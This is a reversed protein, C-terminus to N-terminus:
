KHKYSLGLMLWNASFDSNQKESNQQFYHAASFDLTLSKVLPYQLGLEFRHAVFESLREDSSAPGDEGFLAQQNSAYPNKYFFAQSQSYYRYAPLLSWQTSKSEASNLGFFGHVPIDLNLAMTHSTIGWDDDFFRYGLQSTIWNDWQKIWSANIGKGLREEPRLEGALFIESFREIVGDHNVDIARLITQYHNSLYGSDHSAFVSVTATSSASLTQNIGAEIDFAHNKDIVQDAYSGNFVYSENYIYSGGLTYSRNKRRDAWWLKSASVSSSSYDSEKSYGATVTTENRLEDRSTLSVNISRRIDTLDVKEVLYEGNPDYGLILKNSVRRAEELKTQRNRLDDVSVTATKSRLTPSAGSIADYGLDISYDYDVGKKGKISVAHDTVNVRDDGEVYRLVHYGFTAEAIVAASFVLLLVAAISRQLKKTVVVVVGAM